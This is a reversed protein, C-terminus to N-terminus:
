IGVIGGVAGGVMMTFIALLSHLELERGMVKPATGYDMLMRWLVLLLLMWIWHAHTVVGATVVTSAALIWGARRLKMRATEIRAM